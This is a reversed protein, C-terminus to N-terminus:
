KSHQRPSSPISPRDKIPHTSTIENSAASISFNRVIRHIRRREVTHDSAKRNSSRRRMINTNRRLNEKKEQEDRMALYPLQWMFPEGVRGGKMASDALGQLIEETNTLLRIFVDTGRLTLHEGNFTRDQEREALRPIRSFFARLKSLISTFTSREEQSRLLIVMKEDKSLQQRSETLMDKKDMVIGMIAEYDVSNSGFQTAHKLRSLGENYFLPGKSFCYVAARVLYELAKPKCDSALSYQHGLQAFHSPQGECADEIYSAVAYHLRARDSAPTLDYLTQYLLPHVFSYEVNTPLEINSYTKSDTVWQNRKLSSLSSNMHTRMLPSLIGYLVDKNFDNGIISATRLVNQDESSLKEYRCVIFLELKSTTSQNARHLLCFQPDESESRVDMSSEGQLVAPNAIPHVSNCTPIQSSNNGKIVESIMPKQRTVRSPTDISCSRSIDIEGPSSPFESLPFPRRNFCKFVKGAKRLQRSESSANLPLTSEVPKMALMFEASGTTKMFLAMERCWFPNGGSLQHVMNATGDPCQSVDLITCLLQDVELISYDILKVLVTSKFKLLKKSIAIFRKFEVSAPTYSFADKSLMSPFSKNLGVALDELPDITLVVLALSPTDVLDLLVTLTHYDAFHAYELIIVISRENLLYSFIDHLCQNLLRPPLHSHTFISVKQNQTNDSDNSRDCNNVNDTLSCTVGLAIMM